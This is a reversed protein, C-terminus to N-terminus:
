MAKESYNPIMVSLSKPNSKFTVPSEGTVDGDLHFRSCPQCEVVVESGKAQKIKSHTLHNGTYITDMLKSLEALKVNNGWVIDFLNDQLDANPLIHMGAGYFQACGVALLLLNEIKTSAGDITVNCMVGKYAAFTRLISFYYRAKTPLFKQVMGPQNFRTMVEADFGVGAINVFHRKGAVQGTDVRIEIGEYALRLAQRLDTPIQLTRAYDNGTGAPIVVLPTETDILANAVENITGDGGMAGVKSCGDDIARQASETGGAPKETFYPIVDPFSVKLENWAELARGGGSKPNIVIGIKGM